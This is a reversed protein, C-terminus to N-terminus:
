EILLSSTYVFHLCSLGLDFRGIHTFDDADANEGEDADADANGFAVLFGCRLEALGARM